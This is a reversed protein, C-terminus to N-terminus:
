LKTGSNPGIVALNNDYLLSTIEEWNELLIKLFDAQDCSEGLINM